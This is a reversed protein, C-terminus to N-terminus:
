AVRRQGTVVDAILRQKYEKLVAIEKELGAVAEDKSYLGSRGEVYGNVDRLHAVISSELGGEKTNTPM